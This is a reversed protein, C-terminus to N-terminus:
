FDDDDGEQLHKVFWNTAGLIFLGAITLACTM